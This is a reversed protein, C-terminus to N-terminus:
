IKVSQRPNEQRDKARPKLKVKKPQQLRKMKKLSNAFVQFYKYYSIFVIINTFIYINNYKIKYEGLMYMPRKPM